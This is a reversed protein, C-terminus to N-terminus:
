TKKKQRQIAKEPHQAAEFSLEAKREERKSNVFARVQNYKEFFITVGVQQKIIEVVNKAIELLQEEKSTDIVIHLPLIIPFLYDKLFEGKIKTSIAAFWRFIWVKQKMGGRRAISSLRRFIWFLPANNKPEDDQEETSLDKHYQLQPQNQLLLTVFLLNKVVQEGMQDTLGESL